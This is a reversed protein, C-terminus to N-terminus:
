KRRKEPHLDHCARCTIELRDYAQLAQDLRGAKASLVIQRAAELNDTALKLIDNQRANKWYATEGAGSKALKQALEIAKTTAKADLADKLDDKWEQAQDMTEKHRAVDDAARNPAFALLALLLVKKM